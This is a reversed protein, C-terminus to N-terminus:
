LVELDLDVILADVPDVRLRAPTGLDHVLQLFGDDL